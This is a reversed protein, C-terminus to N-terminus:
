KKGDTKGVCDVTLHKKVAETM